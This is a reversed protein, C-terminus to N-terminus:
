GGWIRKDDDRPHMGDWWTHPTPTYVRQAAQGCQPCTAKHEDHISQKVEFQGHISCKFIYQM